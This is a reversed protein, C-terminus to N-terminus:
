VHVGHQKRGEAAIKPLADLWMEPPQAGSVAYKGILVFYPVGSIGMDLGENELQLVAELSDDQDIANRTDAPDLGAANALDLLVDKRGIDFCDEFYGAFM